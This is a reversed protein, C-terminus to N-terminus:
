QKIKPRVVAKGEKTKPAVIPAQDFQSANM